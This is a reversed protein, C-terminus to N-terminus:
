IVLRGTCSAGTSVLLLHETHPVNYPHPVFDCPSSEDFDDDDDDTATTTLYDKSNYLTCVAVCHM